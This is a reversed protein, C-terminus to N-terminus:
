GSSYGFSNLTICVNRYTITSSEYHALRHMTQANRLGTGWPYFFIQINCRKATQYHGSESIATPLCHNNNGAHLFNFVEGRNKKIIIIEYGKGLTPNKWSLIASKISYRTARLFTPIITYIYIYIYWQSNARKGYCSVWPGSPLVGCSDFSATRSSIYPSSTYFKKDIRKKKTITEEKRRKERRIM